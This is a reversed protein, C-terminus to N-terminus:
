LPVPLTRLADLLVLTKPQNQGLLTQAQKIATAMDPAAMIGADTVIQPNLAGVIILHYRAALLAIMYARQEGPLCGERRLHEILASTAGFRALVAYFNQEGVGEGAGEPLTAPVIIVGGDRIVPRSCLALYTAARSAQYLNADKPAGVGGILVDYPANPVPTEYLARASEVLEDHVSLDGVAAHTIQNKSPMVVNAILSMGLYVGAKRVFDQFPNGAIQGLRVGEKDLLAPGHTHSITAAGGCGIVATKAGGSYGAYQHPEVVGTAILLTQPDLLRPNVELPIGEIEGVNVVTKPDHDYVAYKNVIEAGLKAVKEAPTSPRHMGVACLFSIQDAPFPLARLLESALWQDPSHRTADTFMILARSKGKPDIPPINLQPPAQDPIDLTALDAGWPIDFNITDGGLPLSFHNPMLKVIPKFRDSTRYYVGNM